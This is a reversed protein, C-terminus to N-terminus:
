LSAEYIASTRGKSTPMKQASEGDWGEDRHNARDVRLILQEPCVRLEFGRSRELLRRPELADAQVWAITSDETSDEIVGVRQLVGHRWIEVKAGPLRRWDDFRIFKM